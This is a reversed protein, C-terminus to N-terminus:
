VAADLDIGALLGLRSHFEDLRRAMETENTVDAASWLREAVAPLGSWLRVDLVAAAVLESWLCAEGGLVRGAAASPEPAAGREAFRQAWLLGDRVHALRPDAAPDSSRP